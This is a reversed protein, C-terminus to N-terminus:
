LTYILLKYWPRKDLVFDLSNRLSKNVVQLRQIEMELEKIHKTQTM